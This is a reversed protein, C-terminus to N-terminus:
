DLLKKLGGGTSVMEEVADKDVIINESGFEVKGILPIVKRGQILDQMLGDSIELGEILGTNYDFLVDEVTGLNDGTKTYVKLGRVQGKAGLAGNRGAKKMEVACSCNEVMIADKGFSSVDKILIVRNNVQLGKRELLLAKVERTGPCFIIDKVTGLSKGNGACIVPLGIVESYKEM